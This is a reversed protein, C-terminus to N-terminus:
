NESEFATCKWGLFGLWEIKKGDEDDDEVVNM